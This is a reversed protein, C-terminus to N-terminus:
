DHWRVSKLHLAVRTEGDVQREIRVPLNRLEAAMWFLTRRSSNLRQQVLRRTEFRGAPTELIEEGDPRLEHVEMGDRDLLSIREAALPGPRLMLAVQFSGRDLMGPVLETEASFDAATIIAREREWDFEIRFDNRGRRTGDRLSYALPRIRSNEHVFESLEEAPSPVLLRFLGSVRSASRFEYTDNTGAVATVSFETEGVTLGSYSVEYVAEYTPLSQAAGAVAWAGMSMLAAIVPNARM